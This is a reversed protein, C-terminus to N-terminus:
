TLSFLDEGSNMTEVATDDRQAEAAEEKEHTAADQDSVVGAKERAAKMIDSDKIREFLSSNDSMYKAAFKFADTDTHAYTMYVQHTSLFSRIESDVKELSWGRSLSGSKYFIKDPEYVMKDLVAKKDVENDIIRATQVFNFKLTRMAEAAETDNSTGKFVVITESAYIPTGEIDGVKIFANPLSISDIFEKNRTPSLMYTALRCKNMDLTGDTNRYPKNNNDLKIVFCMTAVVDRPKGLIDKVMKTKLTADYIYKSKILRVENELEVDSVGTQKAFKDRCDKIEKEMQGLRFLSCIRRLGKLRTKDIPPDNETRPELMSEDYVVTGFKKKGDISLDINAVTSKATILAYFPKEETGYNAVPFIVAYNGAGDLAKFAGYLTGVKRQNESAEIAQQPNIGHKSDLFSM